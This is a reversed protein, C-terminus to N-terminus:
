HDYAAEDVQIMEYLRLTATGQGEVPAPARYHWARVSRWRATDRRVVLPDISVPRRYAAPDAAGLGLREAIARTAEDLTPYWMGDDPGADASSAPVAATVLFQRTM